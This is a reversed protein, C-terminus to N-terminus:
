AVSVTTINEICEICGADFPVGFDDADIDVALSYLDDFPNDDQTDSPPEPPGGNMAVAAAEIRSQVDSVWLDRMDAASKPEGERKCKEYANKAHVADRFCGQEFGWAIAQGSGSFVAPAEHEMAAQDERPIGDYVAAEIRDPMGRWCGTEDWLTMGSRGRRAWDVRVGRRDGDQVIGLELNLSRRLRALEVMTVSTVEAEQAKADRAQRLHYVWLTDAGWRTIEDQLLRMALAKPKFAAIRNKNRGADNDLVAATTLPALISTLSDVVITRVRAGPMSARLLEAIREAAVNDAGVESLRYVDGVALGAVEAFRHDADVVLTPGAMQAAFTSKGSGPYGVLAWQRPPRADETMKTFPM